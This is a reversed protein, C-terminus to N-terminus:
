ERVTEVHREGIERMLEAPTMADWDTRMIQSM